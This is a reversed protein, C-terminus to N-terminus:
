HLPGWLNSKGKRIIRIIHSEYFEGLKTLLCMLIYSLSVVRGNEMAWEKYTFM